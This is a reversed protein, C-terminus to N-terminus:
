SADILASRLAIVFCVAALAAREDDLLLALRPTM